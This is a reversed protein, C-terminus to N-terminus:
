DTAYGPNQQLRDNALLERTPLPFLFKYKTTESYTIKQRQFTKEIGFRKFTIWTNFEFYFEKHYEDMLVAFFDEQNNFDSDVAILANARERVQNLLSICASKNASFNIRALVEAKLLLVEAYRMIYYAHNDREDGVKGQMYKNLTFTTDLKFTNNPLRIRRVSLTITSDRRVDSVNYFEYMWKKPRMWTQDFTSYHALKSGTGVVSAFMIPWVAEPNNARGAPSFIVGWDPQLKYNPNDLIEQLLASAKAYDKLEDPASILVKALLGKAAVKTLRGWETKTESLIGTLHEDPLNKSAFELDKIIQKYVEITPTRAPYLDGINEDTMLPVDGYCNTLIFYDFARYAMAEALAQNKRLEPKFPTNYKNVNAIFLNCQNAQAYLFRWIDNVFGGDPKLDGNLAAQWEPTATSLGMGLDGYVDLFNIDLETIGQLQYCSLLAVEAGEQTAFQASEDNQGVPLVDDLIENCGTIIILPLLLLYIFIRKMNM